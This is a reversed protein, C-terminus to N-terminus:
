AQCAFSLEAATARNTGARERPPCVVRAAAILCRVPCRLALTLSHCLLSSEGCSNVIQITVKLNASFVFARAQVSRLSRTSFLVTGLILILRCDSFRLSESVGADCAATWLHSSAERIAPEPLVGHVGQRMPLFLYFCLTDAHSDATNM